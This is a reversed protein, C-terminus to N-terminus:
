GEFPSLHLLVRRDPVFTRRALERLGGDVKLAPAPLVTRDGTRARAAEGALEDATDAPSFARRRHRRELRLEVVQKEWAAPARRGVDTFATQLPESLDAAEATPAYALALLFAHGRVDQCGATVVRVVQDDLTLAVVLRLELLAALVECGERDAAAVEYGVVTALFPARLKQTAPLAPTGAQPAPAEGPLSPPLLFARDVLARASEPRVAGTMVVTMASSAYTAQFFTIVDARTIRDRTAGSGLTTGGTGGPYIAGELLGALGGSDGVDSQEHRVVELERDVDARDLRPSTVARLYREALEPFRTAPADLVFRTTDRSTFANLTAGAARADAVFQWTAGTGVRVLLHEVLHAMGGKGAPDHSSGARLVIRLSATPAGDVPAVVLELGGPLVEQHVPADRAAAPLAALLAAGLLLLRVTTM